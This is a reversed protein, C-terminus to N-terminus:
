AAVVCQHNFCGAREEEPLHNSFYVPCWPGCWFVLVWCLYFELLLSYVVVPDVGLFLVPSNKFCSMM